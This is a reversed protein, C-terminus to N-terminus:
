LDWKWRGRWISIILSSQPRTLCLGCSIFIVVVFVPCQCRINDRNDKNDRNDTNYKNDRDAFIDLIPSLFFFLSFRNNLFPRAPDITVLKHTTNPRDISLKLFTLLDAKKWMGTPLLGLLHKRKLLLNLCKTQKVKMEPVSLFLRVDDDHCCSQTIAM